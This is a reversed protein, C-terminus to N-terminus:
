KQGINLLYICLNLYTLCFNLYTLFYKRTGYVLYETKYKEKMNTTVGTKETVLVYNYDNFIKKLQLLQTLHGGVSSIFMVRKRTDKEKKGM